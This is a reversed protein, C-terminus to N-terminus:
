ERLQARALVGAKNQSQVCTKCRRRANGQQNTHFYTNEPTYEHGNRCHTKEGNQPTPPATPVSSLGKNCTRCTRRGDKVEYTNAKNMPHGATCHTRHRGVQRSKAGRRTNEGQTVAELHAPNVCPKNRCLHDIHLGKPIPGVFLIYAARQATIHAGGLHYMGYGHNAIARTWEWCGSGLIRVCSLFRAQDQTIM